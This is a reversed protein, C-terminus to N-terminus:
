LSFQWQCYPRNGWTVLQVRNQCQYPIQFSRLSRWAPLRISFRERDELQFPVAVIWTPIRKLSVYSPWVFLAWMQPFYKDPQDVWNVREEKRWDLLTWEGQEVVIGQGDAIVWLLHFTNWHIASDNFCRSRVKEKLGKGWVAHRM